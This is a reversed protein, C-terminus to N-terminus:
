FSYHLGTSLSIRDYDYDAAGSSKTTKMTDYTLGIDGSLKESFRYNMSLHATYSLRDEGSLGNQGSGYKAQMGSIDGTFSVDPTLTYTMSVGARLTFVDRFNRNEGRYTDINENHFNVYARMSLGEAMKRNYGANVTPSFRNFSGVNKLQVGVNLNCSSEPTLSENVGVNLNYSASDQGYARLEDRASFNMSYSTLDSQRYSLGSNLSLYQRDDDYRNGYGKEYGGTYMTGSYGGGFNWSWRSDIVERYSGNLNWTFTDGRNGQSSLGNDYEPEPTFTLSATGTFRSQASFAHSMNASLSCDSRWKMNSNTQVYYTAGLRGSYSIQDTSEVDAYSSSLGANVYSSGKSGGSTRANPNTDYGYRVNATMKMAQSEPLGIVPASEYLSLGYVASTSVASLMLFKYFSSKM